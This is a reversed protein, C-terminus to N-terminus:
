VQFIVKPSRSCIIIRKFREPNNEFYRSINSVIQKSTSGMLLFVNIKEHMDLLQMLDNFQLVSEHPHKESFNSYNIAIQMQTSHYQGTLSIWVIVMISSKKYYKVGKFRRTQNLQNPLFVSEAWQEGKACWKAGWEDSKAVNKWSLNGISWMQNHECGVTYKQMITCCVKFLFLIFVIFMIFINLINSINFYVRDNFEM